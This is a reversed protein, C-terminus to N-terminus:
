KLPGSGDPRPKGGPRFEKPIEVGNAELWAAVEHMKRTQPHDPKLCLQRQYAIKDALDYGLSNWLTYNAGANLLYLVLDFKGSNAASLTPTDGFANRANIDAGADLLVEAVGIQRESAVGTIVMFIPTRSWMGSSRLDPNGGHALAAKLFRLDEHQVAWHIVSGGDDYLVNPDAGLELLKVFGHYDRMAWFLPTANSTGRSNVDVGQGVLAEIEEVDGDGAADALARVKPDPFMTRLSMYAVLRQSDRQNAARESRGMRAMMRSLNTSCGTVTVVLCVSLLVRFRVPLPPWVAAHSDTMDM